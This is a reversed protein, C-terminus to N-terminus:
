HLKPLRTAVDASYCHFFWKRAIFTLIEFVTYSIREFNSNIILLFDYMLKQNVGLDIVKSLRSSSYTRIKKPHRAIDYM